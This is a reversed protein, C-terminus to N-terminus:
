KGDLFQDGIRVKHRKRWGAAIELVYRAPVPVYLSEESLPKAGDIFGVLVGRENFFLLDLPLFTDKMHFSWVGEGPFIFLM